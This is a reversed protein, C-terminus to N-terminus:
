VPSSRMGRSCRYKTYTMALLDRRRYVPTVLLMSRRTACCLPPSILPKENMREPPPYETGALMGPTVGSHTLIYENRLVDEVRKRREVETITKSALIAQLIRSNQATVASLKENAQDQKSEQDERSIENAVIALIGFSVLVTAIVIRLSRKNEIKAMLEPWLYSMGAFALLLLSIDPAMNRIVHITRTVTAHRSLFEFFITATLHHYGHVLVKRYAFIAPLAILVGLLVLTRRRHNM